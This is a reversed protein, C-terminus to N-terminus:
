PHVAISCGTLLVQPPPRNSTSSKLSGNFRIRSHIGCGFVWCKKRWKWVRGILTLLWNMGNMQEEVWFAVTFAKECQMSSSTCWQADDPLASVIIICQNMNVNYLQILMRYCYFVISFYVRIHMIDCWTLTVCTLRISLQLIFLSYILEITFVVLYTINLTCSSM